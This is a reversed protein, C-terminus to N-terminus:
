EFILYFNLILSLINIYIMYIYPLERVRLYPKNTCPQQVKNIANGILVLM